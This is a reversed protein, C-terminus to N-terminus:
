EFYADFTKVDEHLAHSAVEVGQNNKIAQVHQLFPALWAHLADHSPGTMRCEKILNDAQRQLEVGSPEGNVHTSQSIYAKLKNMNERTAADLKWKQGNNLELKVQRTTTAHPETEKTESKPQNDSCSAIFLMMVAIIPKLM